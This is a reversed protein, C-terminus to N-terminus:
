FTDVIFDSTNIKNGNIEVCKSYQMGISKNIRVYGHLQNSTWGIPISKSKYVDGNNSVVALIAGPLLGNNIGANVIYEGTGDVTAVIRYIRPFNKSVSLIMPFVDNKFWQKVEDEILDDNIILNKVQHEILLNVDLISASVIKETNSIEVVELTILYQVAAPYDYVKVATCYPHTNEDCKGNKIAFNIIESDVQIFKNKDNFRKSEELVSERVSLSLADSKYYIGYKSRLELDRSKQIISERSSTDMSDELLALREEYVKMYENSKNKEIHKSSNIKKQAEVEIMRKQFYEDTLYMPILAGKQREEYSLEGLDSIENKKEDKSLDNKNKFMPNGCSVMMVLCLPFITKIIKINM